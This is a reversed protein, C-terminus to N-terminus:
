DQPRCNWSICVITWSWRTLPWPWLTVYRLLLLFMRFSSTEHVELVFYATNYQIYQCVKSM